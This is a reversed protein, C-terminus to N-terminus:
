GTKTLLYTITGSINPGNLTVIVQFTTGDFPTVSPACTEGIANCGHAANYATMDGQLLVAFATGDDNTLSIAGTTGSVPRGNISLNFSSTFQYYGNPLDTPVLAGPALVPPAVLNNVTRADGVYSAFQGSSRALLEDEVPLALGTVSGIAFQLAPTQNGFTPSLLAGLGLSFNAHGNALAFLAAGPLRSTPAAPTGAGDAIGLGVDGAGAFNQYASTFTDVTNCAASKAPAELLTQALADLNGSGSLMAQSFALAEASMCGPTAAQTTKRSGGPPAALSQLTALILNDVDAINTQNVTINVGGVAGLSFSLGNQVVSQINNLLQQMDGVEAAIAADVGPAEQSTGTIAIQLKQAEALNARILSLTGAGSNKAAPLPQINFGPLTNSDVAVGASTQTLKVNVTGSGFAGSVPNFYPPVSATVASATVSSPPISVSYGTNDSLTLAFKASPDFNSGAITLVSAPAAAPPNFATLTPGTLGFSFRELPIQRGDPLTLTANSVSAFQLTVAGAMANAVTPAKYPGALTQGNSLQLWQGQFLGPNQMPGTTLYWTANGLADYMYGAFYIQGSQVEIAFGRGPEALNLWWGTQPNTAPQPTSSGGPVIDFRQISINASGSAGAWSVDATTDSIFNITISGVTPALVAQQFGGTLTQGGSYTILPGSYQTSSMPGLAAVWTPNGTIGYLFGAMFIQSGQIEIVFGSGPAAPNWWFGSEPVAAAPASFLIACCVAAARLARAARDSGKTSLPTTSTILRYENDVHHPWLV